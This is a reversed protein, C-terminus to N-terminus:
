YNELTPSSLTGTKVATLPIMKMTTMLNLLMDIYQRITTPPSLQNKNFLTTTCHKTFLILIGKLDPQVPPQYSRFPSRLANTLESIELNDREMQLTIDEAVTTGHVRLESIPCYYEDGYHTDFQIRIYKFWLPAPLVFYIYNILSKIISSLAFPYQLRRANQASFNGLPTWQQAPYRNTGFM